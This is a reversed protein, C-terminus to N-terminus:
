RGVEGAAVAGARALDRGQRVRVALLVLAVAAVPMVFLLWDWRLALYGATLVINALVTIVAARMPTRTDQRAYFAPLLVKSLMFAPVGVSM